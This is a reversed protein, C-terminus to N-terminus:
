PLLIFHTDARSGPKESANLPQEAPAGGGAGSYVRAYSSGDPQTMIRVSSLLAFIRSPRLMQVYFRL